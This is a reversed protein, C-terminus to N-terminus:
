RLPLPGYCHSWTGLIDLHFIFRGRKAGLKGRRHRGERRKDNERCIVNGCEKRYDMNGGM